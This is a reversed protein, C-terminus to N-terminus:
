VTGKVFTEICFGTHGCKECKLKRTKPTHASFIFRGLTPRFTANCEACIYATNKYYMRTILVGFLIVFPFGVAFPIWLGKIIWLAITGINIASMMIGVVLMIGHVKRLGKKNKMMHGIDNISNVPITDQNRISGKIIKIADIQEQKEKIDCGLQKVQEDLLLTLVKGPEESDLIGQITNLTLGLAKLMCILRLKTLDNDNYIRRGGDTLENPPLLGKTDYFQETRVSVNCFKALEGTSYKSM